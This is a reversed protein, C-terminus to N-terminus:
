LIAKALGGKYGLGLVGGYHAGLLGGRYALPAALGHGYALPAALGHGYALPAGWGYAGLGHGLAGAYALPAAPAVHNISSGYATVAPVAGAAIVPGGVGLGVAHAAAVFAM